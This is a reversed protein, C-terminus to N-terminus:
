EETPIEEEVVEEEVLELKKMKEILGTKELLNQDFDIAVTSVWNNLYEKMGKPTDEYKIVGNKGIDGTRTTAYKSSDFKDAYRTIKIGSKGVKSTVPQGIYPMELTDFVRNFMYTGGGPTDGPYGLEKLDEMTLFIRKLTEAGKTPVDLESLVKLNEPDTVVVIAYNNAYASADKTVGGGGGGTRGVPVEEIDLKVM